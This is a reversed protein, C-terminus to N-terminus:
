MSRSLRTTATDAITEFIADMKMFITWPNLGILTSVQQITATELETHRKGKWLKDALAVMLTEISPSDTQWHEHSICFDAIQPDIGHEILLQYGATTHQTGEIELEEPHLTKGVDHLICGLRVLLADFELGINSFHSILMEAAESVLEAHRILRPPAELRSLLAYTEDVSLSM